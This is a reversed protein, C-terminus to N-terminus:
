GLALLGVRLVDRFLGVKVVVRVKGAEKVERLADTVSGDCV